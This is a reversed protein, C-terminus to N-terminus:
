GTVLRLLLERRGGDLATGTSTTSGALAGALHAVFRQRVLGDIELEVVDGDRPYPFKMSDNYRAPTQRDDCFM